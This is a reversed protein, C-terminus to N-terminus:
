ERDSFLDARNITIKHRCNNCEYFTGLHWPYQNYLTAVEFIVPICGSLISDFVAPSPQFQLSHFSHSPIPNSLTKHFFIALYFLLSNFFLLSFFLFSSFLLSIFLFQHNLFPYIWQLVCSLLSLNLFLIPSITCSTISICHLYPLASKFMSMVFMFSNFNPQGM